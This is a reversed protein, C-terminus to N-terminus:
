TINVQVLALGPVVRKLHLRLASKRAAEGVGHRIREPLQQHVVSFGLMGSRGFRKRGYAVVAAAGIQVSRVYERQIAYPLNGEAPLPRESARSMRHYISDKASPLDIADVEDLRTRRQPERRRSRREAVPSIG